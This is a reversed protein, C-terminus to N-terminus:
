INRKKLENELEDIETALKRRFRLSRLRRYKHIPFSFAMANGTLFLSALLVWFRVSNRGAGDLALSSGIFIYGLSWILYHTVQGSTLIQDETESLAPYTEMVGLEAKLAKIRRELASRSRSAWWNRFKPTLLNGIVSLPIALLIAAIGLVLGWAGPDKPWM